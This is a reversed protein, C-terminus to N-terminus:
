DTSQQSGPDPDSSSSYNVTISYVRVSASGALTISEIDDNITFTYNDPNEATTTQATKGNVAITASSNKSGGTNDCNVVISTAYVSGSESLAISLSSANGSKGLRICSKTDGYYINGSNVSFPSSQVYSRSDSAIVTSAQTTATLPTASNANNAFTITYNEGWVQGVGALLFLLMFTIHKLQQRRRDASPSGVTAYSALGVSLGFQTLLHKM